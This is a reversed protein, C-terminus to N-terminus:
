RINVKDFMRYSARFINRTRDCDYDIKGKTAPFPTVSHNKLLKRIYLNDSRDLKSLDIGAIKTDSEHIVLVNRKETEGKKNTYTFKLNM